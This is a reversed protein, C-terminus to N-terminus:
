GQESNQFKTNQNDNGVFLLNIKVSKHFIIRVELTVGHVIDEPSIVNGLSKSM